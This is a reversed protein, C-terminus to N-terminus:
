AGGDAALFDIVVDDDFEEAGLEGAGVQCHEKLCSVPVEQVLVPSIAADSLTITLPQLCRGGLAQYM